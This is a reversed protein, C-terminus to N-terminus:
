LVGGVMLVRLHAPAASLADDTLLEVCWGDGDVDLAVQALRVEVGDSGGRLRRTPATAASACRVGRRRRRGGRRVWLGPAPAAARAPRPPPWARRRRGRGPAAPLRPHGTTVATAVT